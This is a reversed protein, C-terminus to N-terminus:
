HFAEESFGVENERREGMVLLRWLTILVSSVSQRGPLWSGLDLSFSGVTLSVGRSSKLQSEVCRNTYTSLRNVFHIAFVSYGGESADTDDCCSKEFSHNKFKVQLNM